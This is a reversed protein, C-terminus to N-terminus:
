PIEKDHRDPTTPAFALLPRGTLPHTGCHARVRFVQLLLDPIFVEEPSGSAVVRGADLVFVQDCYSTALNLDHVATVVTVGLSSVLELVDLQAAIDLHNTPEDLVLVRPEQALARAILVKQKEGGSLTSFRREVLGSAGARALSDKIIQEDTVNTRQLLNKHPVRGLAVIESVTFDFDAPSEQTLVATRRAAQRASIGWVLDGGVQVVGETPRLARYVTRLLTSKGSGNPGVLGVITSAAAHLVGCSVIRIGNIDVVVAQADVQMM